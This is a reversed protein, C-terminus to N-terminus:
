FLEKIKKLIKIGNRESSQGNSYPVNTRTMTRTKAITRTTDNDLIDYNTDISGKLIEEIRNAANIGLNRKVNNVIFKNNYKKAKISALIKKIFIDERNKKLTLYLNDFLSESWMTIIKNDNEDDKDQIYM